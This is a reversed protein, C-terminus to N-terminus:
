LVMIFMEWLDLYEKQNFLGITEQRGPKSFVILLNVRGHLLAATLSNHTQSHTALAKHVCGM